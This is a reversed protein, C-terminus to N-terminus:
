CDKNFLDATILEIEQKQQLISDLKDGLENISSEIHITGLECEIDCTFLENLISENLITFDLHQLKTRIIGCATNKLVHILARKHNFTKIYEQICDNVRLDSLENKIILFLNLLDQDWRGIEFEDDGWLLLKREEDEELSIFASINNHYFDIMCEKDIITVKFGHPRLKEALDEITWGDQDSPTEDDIIDSLITDIFNIMYINEVSDKVFDDTFATLGCDIQTFDWYHCRERGQAHAKEITDQLNIKDFRIM